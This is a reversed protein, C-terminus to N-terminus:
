FQAPIVNCQFDVTLLYLAHWVISKLHNLIFYPPSAFKPLGRIEAFLLFYSSCFRWTPRFFTCRVSFRPSFKPPGKLPLRQCEKSEAKTPVLPQQSIAPKQLSSTLQVAFIYIYIYIDILAIGHNRAEIYCFSFLSVWPINWELVQQVYRVPTGCKHSPLWRKGFRPAAHYWLRMKGTCVKSSAPLVKPNSPQKVQGREPNTSSSCRHHPHKLQPSIDKASSEQVTSVFLM